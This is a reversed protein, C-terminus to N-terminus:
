APRHFFKVGLIFRSGKDMTVLATLGPKGVLQAYAAVGPPFTFELTGDDQGPRGYVIRRGGGVDAWVTPALEAYRAAPGAAVAEETQRLLQLGDRWLLRAYGTEQKSLRVTLTRSAPDSTVVGTAAHPRPMPNTAEAVSTVAARQQQVSPAENDFVYAHPAVTTELAGYDWWRDVTV